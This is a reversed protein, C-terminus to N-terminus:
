PSWFTCTCGCHLSPVFTSVNLFKSTEYYNHFFMWRWLTCKDWTGLVVIYMYKFWCDGWRRDRTWHYGRGTWGGDSSQTCLCSFWVRRVFSQCVAVTCTLINVDNLHYVIKISLNNRLVHFHVNLKTIVKHWVVNQMENFSLCAIFVFVPM